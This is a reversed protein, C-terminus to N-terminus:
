IYVYKRHCITIWTWIKDCGYIRWICSFIWWYVFARKSLTVDIIDSLSPVGFGPIGFDISAGYMLSTKSGSYSPYGAPVCTLLFYKAHSQFEVTKNEQLVALCFVNRGPLVWNQRYQNPFIFTSSSHSFDGESLKSTQATCKTDASMKCLHIFVREYFGENKVCKQVCKLCNNRYRWNNEYYFFQWIDYFFFFQIYTSCNKKVM